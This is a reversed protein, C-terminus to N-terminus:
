IRLGINVHVAKVNTYNELAHEGLDRGIGSQKYGGLPLGFDLWNSFNVWATGAEIDSVVRMARDIDKTFVSCALGYTSNNAQEMVEEETTFKIVSAVPGFIEEQVIRMNPKCDTFIAPQIFYGETGHQKGGSHLTAGEEQGSRIYGMVRQFQNESVLPGQFTDPSFPDGLSINRASATFKQLFDDYIGAQVYIRSGAICVEGSNTFIGKVTWKVAQELDADDFILSPSKGGLELSIKKLNSRAASEMIKRGTATSGTFAVQDIRMSESIAQGATHGYGSVINVVGPQFGAEQILMCLFLATLPTFESPKAVITNGCALAPALKM